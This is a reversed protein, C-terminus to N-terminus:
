TKARSPTPVESFITERRSSFPCSSPLQIEFCTMAGLPEFRLFGQHKEIIQRAVALGLGVGEPKNTTFADFLRDRVEPAPGPGSDLVRVVHAWREGGSLEVRVWGGPGAGDRANLVLNMFAQSLQDADAELVASHDKEVVEIQVDHHRFSPEVLGVVSRVVEALNCPGTRPEEPKGLALFRKLHSEILALQRLAVELSEPDIQGCRRQHLQMAMRAGAVGNRLHHAMGGSLQGLLAM